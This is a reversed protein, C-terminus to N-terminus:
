PVINYVMKKNSNFNTGAPNFNNFGYWGDSSGGWGWNMHYYLYGVGTCDAYYYNVDKYGDCVWMHGTTGNDGSLLVPRSYSLNSKVTQYNYSAWSASSYGFQSKLVNGMNASASVGTGDCAYSPQGSYVNGIATHIDKVFNATTTTAYTLPMSSWSYSTPYQHYKMLQAMAIPVCGAYVQFSSGSCTIYPLADNFAGTQYWTTSLLPGVTYIETHDYCDIPDVRGSSSTSVENIIFKQVHSWANKEDLSQVADSAQIDSIQKKSDEM